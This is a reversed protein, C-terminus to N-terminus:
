LFYIMIFYVFFLYKKNGLFYNFIAYSSDNENEENEEKEENEENEDNEENEENEKEEKEEKELYNIVSEIGMINNGSYVYGYGNDGWEIGWSNRIIWYEKNNEDVNWGVIVIQHDYDDPNCVTSDYDLIFTGNYDLFGGCNSNIVGGVPGYKYIIEKLSNSNINKVEHYNEINVIVKNKDYLCKTDSNRFSQSFSSYSYDQNLMLGNQKIYYLINSFMGGNSCIDNYYCDIIQQESLKYLKGYNLAIFSEIIAISSFVVCAGCQGQNQIENLVGKEVWNFSKPLITNSIFKKFLYLFILTYFKIM